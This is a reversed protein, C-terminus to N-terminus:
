FQIGVNLGPWMMVRTKGNVLKDYVNWGVWNTGIQGDNAKFQSVQVNFTPTVTLALRGKLPFIFSSRLQNLLNLTERSNGNERIQYSIGEISLQSKKGLDFNTGLGYGFGWRTSSEAPLASGVTFINYLKSNGGMKFGINAHLADGVWVEGRRYGDKAFNLLGLQVGDVHSALNILGIQIGKVNGASINIIGAAQVGEVNAAINSIGAFQAGRMGQGAINIIGAFQIGKLEGDVLNIIGASQIGEVNSGVINTIGAFQIGKVRGREVAFLGSFEAGDLGGALGGFINFSLRNSYQMSQIGNTSLPPIVSIQIPRVLNDGTEQDVSQANTNFTLGMILSLAISIKKM